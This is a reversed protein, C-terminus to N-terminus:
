RPKYISMMYLVFFYEWAQVFLLRAMLRAVYMYSPLSFIADFSKYMGIFFNSKRSTM